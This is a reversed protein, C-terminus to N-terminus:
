VVKTRRLVLAIFTYLFLILIIYRYYPLSKYKDQKDIYQM